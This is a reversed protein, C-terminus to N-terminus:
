HISQTLSNMRSLQNQFRMNRDRWFMRPWQQSGHRRIRPSRPAASNSSAFVSDHAARRARSSDAPWGLINIQHLARYRIDFM